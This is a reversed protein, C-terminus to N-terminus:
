KVIFFGPNKAFMAKQFFDEWFIQHERTQTGDFDPDFNRQLYIVRWELGPISGFTNRYKADWEEYDLTYNGYKPYHSYKSGTKQYQVMDSVMILHHPKDMNKSFATSASLANITEIIPSTDQEYPVLLDTLKTDIVNALEQVKKALLKKNMVIGQSSTVEDPIVGRCVSIEPKLGDDSQLQDESMVYLQIMTNAGFARTYFKNVDNGDQSELIDNPKGITWSGFMNRIQQVQNKPFGESRDIIIATYSDPGDLPCNTEKDRKVDGQPMFVYALTGLSILLIFIGIGIQTQQQQKQKFTAM